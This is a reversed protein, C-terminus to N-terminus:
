ADEGASLTALADALRSRICIDRGTVSVDAVADDPVFTLAARSALKAEITALLAAPGSVRLCGGGPDVLAREITAVVAAVARGVVAEALLPRLAAAVQGALDDRLTAVATAIQAAVLGGDREIGESRAAAVAQATSLANERDLRVREDLWGAEMAARTEARAAEIRAELALADAAATSIGPEPSEDPHPDFRLDNAAPAIMSFRSLHRALPAHAPRM